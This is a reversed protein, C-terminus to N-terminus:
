NQQCADARTDRPWTQVGSDNGFNRRVSIGSCTPQILCDLSHTRGETHCYSGHEEAFKEAPMVKGRAVGAMDPIVGEVESIGHERFFQQIVGTKTSSM